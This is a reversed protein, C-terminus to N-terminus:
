KSKAGIIDNILGRIFEQRPELRNWVVLVVAITPPAFVEWGLMGLLAPLGGVVESANVSRLKWLASLLLVATFTIVISRGLGRWTEVRQEARQISGWDDSRIKRLTEYVWEEFDAFVKTSGRRVEFAWRNLEGVLSRVLEREDPSPTEGGSLHKPLSLSLAYALGRLTWHAQSRRKLLTRRVKGGVALLRLADILRAFVYLEPRHRQLFRTLYSYTTGRFTATTVVLLAGIIGGSGAAVLMAAASQSLTPGPKVNLWEIGWLAAVSVFVILVFYRQRVLLVHGVTWVIGTTIAFIYFTDISPDGAAPRSGPIKLTVFIVAAVLVLTALWALASRTRRSAVIVRAQRYYLRAWRLLHAREAEPIDASQIFRVRALHQVETATANHFRPGRAQRLVHTTGSSSGGDEECQEEASEVLDDPSAIGLAYRDLPVNYM